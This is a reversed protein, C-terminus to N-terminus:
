ATKMVELQELELALQREIVQIVIKKVIEYSKNKEPNDDNLRKYKAIKRRLVTAQKLDKKYQKLCEEIVRDHFIITNKKYKRKMLVKYVQPSEVQLRKLVLREYALKLRNQRSNLVKKLYNKESITFNRNTRLFYSEKKKNENIKEVKSSNIIKGKKEGIEQDKNKINNNAFSSCSLLVIIFIMIIKQIM